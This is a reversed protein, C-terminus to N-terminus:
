RAIGAAQCDAKEVSRWLRYSENNGSQLYGEAVLGARICRDMMNGSEKVEQYQREFDSAVQNQVNTLYDNKPATSPDSTAAGIIALLVIVVLGLFLYKM